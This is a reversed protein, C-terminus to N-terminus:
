VVSKRDTEITSATSFQNGKGMNDSKLCNCIFHALQVNSRQHNGGRALPIIHDITASLSHPFRLAPNVPEGCIQCIWKDREFIANRNIHEVFSCGARKRDKRRRSTYRDRCQDSCFNRHKDGYESIFEKGCQKCIKKELKKKKSDYVLSKRRNSERECDDSCYQYKRGIPIQKGCISCYYVLRNKDNISQKKEKEEHSAAFACERSCYRNREKHITKYTRGCYECVYQYKMEDEPVNEWYRRCCPESCFKQTKRDALYTQGCFKCVKLLKM